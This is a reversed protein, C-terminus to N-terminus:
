IIEELFKNLYLIGKHGLTFCRSKSYSFHNVNQKASKNEKIECLGQEAWKYFTKLINEPVPEHFINVFDDERIGELKRLGMMFFEFVSTEVSINEIVEPVPVNGGQIYEESYPIDSSLMTKVESYKKSNWFDTYEKINKVNTWRFCSGDDRYVSGAGGSGCGIYSQHSWYRLNHRCEKGPLCFNSVEYHKYGGQKLLEKCTLWLQDAFDFNYNLAGTYYEHGLPTEEEITLSYMSIHSPGLGLLSKVDHIFSASSQTPLVCIMDISLDKHWKEKIIELAKYNTNSDARRSVYSLAKDDFSQIGLSIRNIGIKDWGSIMDVTIDDPNSEITIEANKDVFVNENIVSFIKKLQNIELLSPTGGGIYITDIKKLGFRNIRYALENCLSDIYSDQILKKKDSCTFNNKKCPISFFDCYKCKSICFPIHIYLSNIDTM